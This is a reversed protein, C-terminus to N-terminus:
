QAETTWIETLPWILHVLHFGLEINRKSRHVGRTCECGAISLNIHRDDNDNLTNSPNPNRASSQNMKKQVNAQNKKKTLIIIFCVSRSDSKMHVAPFERCHHCLKCLHCYVTCWKDEYSCTFFSTWSFPLSAWRFVCVCVCVCELMKGWIMFVKCLIMKWGLCWM